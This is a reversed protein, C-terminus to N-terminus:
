TLATTDKCVFIFCFSIIINSVAWLITNYCPSSTLLVIPITGTTICFINNLSFIGEQEESVLMLLKKYPGHMSNVHYNSKQETINNTLHFIIYRIVM